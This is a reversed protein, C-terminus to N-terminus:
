GYLVVESTFENKIAKSLFSRDIFSIRNKELGNPWVVKKRRKKKRGGCL